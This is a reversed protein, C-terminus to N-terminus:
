QLIFGSLRRDNTSKDLIVRGTCGSFRTDKIMRNLTDPDEFDFGLKLSNDLAYGILYNSDYEICNYLIPPFGSTSTYDAFFSQGVDGVYM